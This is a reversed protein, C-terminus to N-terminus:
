ASGSSRCDMNKEEKPLRQAVQAAVRAVDMSIRNVDCAIV